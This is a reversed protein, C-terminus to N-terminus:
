PETVRVVVKGLVRGEAVAALAEPADDLSVVREMISTLRGELFAELMEAVGANQELLLVGLNRGGGAAWGLLGAELMKSVAGGVVRYRGGPALVRRIRAMSRTGVTDLIRDYVRASAAFDEAPYDLVEDAGLRRMFELKTGHDVATVSAGRAKAWQIAWAGSGGGAGNILVRQGETVGRLGQYAIAAAQPFTAAEDFSLGAPKPMLCKEPAVCWESLAGGVGLIDGMVEDGVGFRTSGPGTEEVVGTLDTGLVLISPAFLGFVRAYAPRGTMAEVDSANLSVSRVRVLM